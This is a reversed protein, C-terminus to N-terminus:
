SYNLKYDKKEDMSFGESKIKPGKFDIRVIRKKV